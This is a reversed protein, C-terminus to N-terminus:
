AQKMASVLSRLRILMYKPLHLLHVPNLGNKTAVNIILIAYTAAISFFVISEFLEGIVVLLFCSVFLVSSALIYPPALGDLCALGFKWESKLLLQFLANRGAKFAIIRGKDWRFNQMQSAEASSRLPTYVVARPDYGVLVRSKALNIGHRWDETPHSTHSHEEPRALRWGFASLHEYSFAM